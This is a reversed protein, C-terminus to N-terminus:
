RQPKVDLRRKRICVQEMRYGVTATRHCRVITGAVVALIIDCATQQVEGLIGLCIYLIEVAHHSCEEARLVFRLRPKGQEPTCVPCTAAPVFGPDPTKVCARSEQQLRHHDGLTRLQHHDAAGHKRQAFRARVNVVGPM